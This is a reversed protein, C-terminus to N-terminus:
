IKCCPPLKSRPAIVLRSLPAPAADTDVYSKFLRLDLWPPRYSSICDNGMSSALTRVMPTPNSLDLLSLRNISAVSQYVGVGSEMGRTSAICCSQSYRNATGCRKTSNPPEVTTQKMDLHALRWFSRITSLTSGNHHRKKSRSRLPRGLLNNEMPNFM